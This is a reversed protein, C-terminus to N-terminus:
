ETKYYPNEGSSHDTTDIIKKIDPFEEALFAKVQVQLTQKSASCGKCGGGLEVYLHQNEEDYEIIKLFGRHSELAPNIYEDLFKQVEGIKM